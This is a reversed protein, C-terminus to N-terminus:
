LLLIIVGLASGVSLTRFLKASSPLRLRLASLSEELRALCLDCRSLEQETYGRGLGSSFELLASFAYADLYLAPRAKNLAAYLDGRAERLDLGARLLVPSTHAALIKERPTGFCAIEERVRRVLLMFAETQAEEERMAYVGRLSLLLAAAFVSLAGVLKYLM